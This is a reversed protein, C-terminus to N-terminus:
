ADQELVETQEPKEAAPFYLWRLLLFAIMLLLASMALPPIALEFPFRIPPKFVSNGRFQLLGEQFWTSIPTTFASVFSFVGEACLWGVAIAGVFSDVLATKLRELM